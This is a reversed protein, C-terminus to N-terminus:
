YAVHPSRGTGAVGCTEGRAPLEDVVAMGTPGIRFVVPLQNNGNADQKREDADLEPTDVDMHASDRSMLWMAMGTVAAFVLAGTSGFVAYGREVDVDGDLRRTM